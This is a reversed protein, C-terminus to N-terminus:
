FESKYDTRFREWAPLELEAAALRCSAQIDFWAERFYDHDLFGLAAQSNWPGNRYRIALIIIIRQFNIADIKKRRRDENPLDGDGESGPNDDGGNGSREVGNGTRATIAEEDEDAANQPGDRAVEGGEDNDDEEDSDLLTWRKRRRNQSRQRLIESEIDSEDSGISPPRGGRIRLPADSKASPRSLM